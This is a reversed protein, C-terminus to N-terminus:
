SVPTATPAPTPPPVPPPVGFPPVPVMIRGPMPPPAATPALKLPPSSPFFDPPGPDRLLLHVEAVESEFSHGAAAITLTPIDSDTMVKQLDPSEFTFWQGPPVRIHKEKTGCTKCVEPSDPAPAGGAYFGQSWGSTGPKEGASTVSLTLPCESGKVGCVPVDHSQVRLVVRLQLWATAPITQTILQSVRVETHYLGQRSFHLVSRGDVSIIKVEGVAEDAREVDSTVKWTQELPATFTSNPLVERTPAMMWRAWTSLREPTFPGYVVLMMAMATTFLAGVSLWARASVRFPRVPKVLQTSIFYLAVTLWAYSGATYQWLPRAGATGGSVILGAVPDLSEIPSRAVLGFPASSITPGPLFFDRAAASGLASAVANFPNLALLWRPLEQNWIVPSVTAAFATGLVFGALVLYSAAVAWWTRRLLASFFLGLVGYTLAVGCLILLARVLDRTTVGGFVFALSAFPVVAALLLGVYSLAALLKGFLIAVGSLPTSVLLDFTKHEHEGSLASATLAPTLACIILTTLFVLGTFLSQGILAGAARDDTNEVSALIIRYLGYTFLALLVLIATLLLFARPGRMRGRLEKILVPNPALRLRM